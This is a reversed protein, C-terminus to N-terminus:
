LGGGETFYSMLNLIRCHTCGEEGTDHAFCEEWSLQENLFDYIEKAQEDPIAVFGFESM